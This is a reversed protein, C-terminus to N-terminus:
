KKYFLGMLYESGKESIGIVYKRHSDNFIKTLIGDSILAKLIKTAVVLPIKTASIIKNIADSAFSNVYNSEYIYRLIKMRDDEQEGKNKDVDANKLPELEQKLFNIEKEKNRIESQLGESYAGLDNLQEQLASNEERVKATELQIQKTLKDDYTKAASALRARIDNNEAELKTIQIRHWRAEEQTLPTEDEIKQKIGKLKKTQELTYEYFKKSILPYAYVYFLAFLLPAFYFSFYGFVANYSYTDNLMMLKKDVDIKDSFLVLLYKHNIAVWSIVLSSMFPTSNFDYLKAKISDKFDNLM